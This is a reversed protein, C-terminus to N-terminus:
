ELQNQLSLHFVRYPNGTVGPEGLISKHDGGARSPLVALRSLTGKSRSWGDTRQVHSHSTGRAYKRDHLMDM